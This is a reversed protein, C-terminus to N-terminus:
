PTRRKRAGSHPLAPLGLPEPWEMEATYEYRDEKFFNETWRIPQGDDLFVSSQIRLVPETVSIGLMTAVEATARAVKLVHVSRKQKLGFDEWLLQHTSKALNRATMKGALSGPLYSIVVSIPTADLQNIRITRFVATDADISFFDAVQQPPRVLARSVLRSKTELNGHLPDGSARVLKRSVPTKANSVSRTGIGRRSQLLGERKLEALAQRITTRSVGFEECLDKETALSLGGLAGHNLVRERLIQVIQLYLPIKPSFPYSHSM